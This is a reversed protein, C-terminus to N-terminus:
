NGTTRRRKWSVPHGETIRRIWEPSLDSLAAVKRQPLVEAAKRIAENRRVYLEAMGDTFAAMAEELDMAAAVEREVQDVKLETEDKFKM